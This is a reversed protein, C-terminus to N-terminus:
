ASYDADVLRRLQDYLDLDAAVIVRILVATAPHIKLAKEWHQVTQQKTRLGPALENLRDALQQQTMNLRRRITPLEAALAQINITETM